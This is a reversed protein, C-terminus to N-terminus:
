LKQCCWPISLSKSDGTYWLLLIENRLCSGTSAYFQAIASTSTVFCISMLM